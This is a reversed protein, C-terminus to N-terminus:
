RVRLNVLVQMPTYEDRIQRELDECYPECLTDEDALQQDCNYPGMPTAQVIGLEIVLADAHRFGDEDLYEYVSAPVQEQGLQLCYFGVTHPTLPEFEAPADPDRAPDDIRMQRKTANAHKKIVVLLRAGPMANKWYSACGARNRVIVTCVRPRDGAGGLAMDDQELLGMLSWGQYVDRPTLQRYLRTGDRQDQRWMQEQARVVHAQWAGPSLCTVPPGGDGDLASGLCHPDYQQLFALQGRRIGPKGPALPKIRLNVSQAANVWSEETFLEESYHVAGPRVNMSDLLPSRAMQAFPGRLSDAWREKGGSRQAFGYDGRATALASQEVRIHGKEREEYAARFGGHSFDQM